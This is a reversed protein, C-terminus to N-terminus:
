QQAALLHSVSLFVAEPAAYEGSTPLVEDQGNEALLRQADEPKIINGNATVFNGNLDTLINGDATRIFTGDSAIVNENSVSAEQPSCTVRFHCDLMHWEFLQCHLYREAEARIQSTTSYDCGPLSCSM